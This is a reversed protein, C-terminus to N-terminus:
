RGWSFMSSVNRATRKFFLIWPRAYWRFFFAGTVGLLGTVTLLTWPNGVVPAVVTSALTEVAHPVVHEAAGEILPRAVHEGATKVTTIAVTEGAQLFPDPNALFATAATGVALAGKNNWLWTAAVDGKDALIRMWDAGRGSAAVDDALIAMRRANTPSLKVLARAGDDGFANVIPAAIAGGHAAVARAADDTYRAAVVGARRAAAEITEKGAERVAATATRKLVAETGEEAAERGLKGLFRKGAAEIGEKAIRGAQAQVAVPRLTVSCTLCIVILTGYRM